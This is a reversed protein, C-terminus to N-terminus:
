VYTGEDNKFAKKETKMEIGHDASLHQRLQILYRCRFTCEVEKCLISGTNSPKESKHVRKMHHYLSGRHKYPQHCINCVFGKCFDQCTTLNSQTKGMPPNTDTKGTHTEGMLPSEGTPPDTHTEGMLPSEDTPPDTHTEGMLPSEGTPPDTHTEGMLPSEGTPPDTHTEGMLPSEDTPPDTHTEGMLPSEGTPPTECTSSPPNTHTKGTQLTKVTPPTEGTPSDTHTEDMKALLAAGNFSGDLREM